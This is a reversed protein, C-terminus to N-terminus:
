GPSSASGIKLFVNAYAPNQTPGGGPSFILV